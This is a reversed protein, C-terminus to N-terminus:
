ELLDRLAGVTEGAGVELVENAAGTEGREPPPEIRALHRHLIELHREALSAGGDRRLHQLFIGSDLFRQLAIRRPREAADAENKWSHKPGLLAALGLPEDRLHGMERFLTPRLRLQLTPFSALRRRM